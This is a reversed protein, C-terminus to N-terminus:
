HGKAGPISAILEPLTVRRLQVGMQRLTHGVTAAIKLILYVSGGHEIMAAWDRRKVIEIEADDVDPERMYAVEDALFQGRNRPIMLSMALRDLRYGRQSHETTFVITGPIDQEQETM